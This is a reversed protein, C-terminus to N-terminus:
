QRVGRTIRRGSALRRRREAREELRRPEEPRSEAAALRAAALRAAALRAAALGLPHNEVVQDLDPEPGLEPGRVGSRQM